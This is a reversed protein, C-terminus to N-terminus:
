TATQGKWSILKAGNVKQNENKKFEKMGIRMYNPSRGPLLKKRSTQVVWIIILIPKPQSVGWKMQPVM